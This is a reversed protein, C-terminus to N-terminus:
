SKNLMSCLSCACMHVNYLQMALAPARLRLTHCLELSEALKSNIIDLTGARHLSFHLYLAFAQSRYGKVGEM